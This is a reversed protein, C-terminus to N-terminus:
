SVSNSWLDADETWLLICDEGQLKDMDSHKGISMTGVQIIFHQTVHPMMLIITYRCTIFGYYRTVVDLNIV